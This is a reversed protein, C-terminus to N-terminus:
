FRLTYSLRLAEVGRDGPVPALDVRDTISTLRRNREYLVPRIFGYVATVGAVGIGIMGPVGALNDEYKLSM